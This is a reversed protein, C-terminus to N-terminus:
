SIIFNVFFNHFNFQTKPLASSQWLEGNAFTLLVFFIDNSMYNQM